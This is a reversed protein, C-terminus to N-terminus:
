NGGLFFKDILEELLRGQPTLTYDKDFGVRALEETLRQRLREADGRSLRVVPRRGDASGDQILLSAFPEQGSFIRRLCHLQEESVHFEYSQRKM